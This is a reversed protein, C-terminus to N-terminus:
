VFRLVVLVLARDVLEHGAILRVHRHLAEVGTERSVHLRAANRGSIYVLCDGLDNMVLADLLSHAGVDGRRDGLSPVDDTDHTPRRGRPIRGGISERSCRRLRDALSPEEHSGTSAQSDHLRPVQAGVEGSTWGLLQVGRDVLEFAQWDVKSVFGLVEVDCAQDGGALGGARRAKGNGGPAVVVSRSRPARPARNAGPM